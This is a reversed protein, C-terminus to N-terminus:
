LFYLTFNVCIFLWNKKQQQQQQQIIQIRSKQDMFLYIFHHHFYKHTIEFIHSLSDLHINLITHVFFFMHINSGLEYRYIPTGKDERYWLILVVDDGHEHTSINCPLYITEGVIADISYM